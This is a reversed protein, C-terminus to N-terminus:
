KHHATAHHERLEEPTDFTEPCFSCKHRPGPPVPDVGEAAKEVHGELHEKLELEDALASGCIECRITGGSQTGIEMWRAEEFNSPHPPFFVSTVLRHRPAQIGVFM